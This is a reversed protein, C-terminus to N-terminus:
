GTSGYSALNTRRVQHTKLHDILRFFVHPDHWPGCNIVENCRLCTATKNLPVFALKEMRNLVRQIAFMNAGGFQGCLCGQVQCPSHHKAKGVHTRYRHTCVCITSHGENAWAKEADKQRLIRAQKRRSTFDGHDRYRAYHMNCVGLSIVKIDNECRVGEEVIICANSNPDGIAYDVTM